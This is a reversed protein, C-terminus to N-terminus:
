SQVSATKLRNQLEGSKYLGQTVDNGGVFEGNVWVSPVTRQGTIEALTSQVAPGQPLNSPMKDLEFIEVSVNAFESKKLLEKTKM